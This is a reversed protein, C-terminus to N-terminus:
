GNSSNARQIDVINNDIMLWTGTETDVVFYEEVQAYNQAQEKDDTGVVSGNFTDTIYFRFKM